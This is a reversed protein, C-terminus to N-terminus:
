STSCLSDPQAFARTRSAGRIRKLVIIALGFMLSFGGLFVDDVVKELM